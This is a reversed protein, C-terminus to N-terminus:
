EASDPLSKLWNREDTYEDDDLQGINAINIGDYLDHNNKNIGDHL